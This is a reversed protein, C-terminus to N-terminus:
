FIRRNESKYQHLQKNVLAGVMLVLTIIYIWLFFLIITGISGYVKSYSSFNNVYFNFCFSSLWWTVVCTIAGPLTSKIKVNKGLSMGYMLMVLITLYSFMCIFLLISNTTSLPAIRLGFLVDLLGWIADAFVYYVLPLIVLFFFMFVFSVSLLYRKFLQLKVEGYYIKNVAEIVTKFAKSSSYIAVIFTTSILGVPTTNQTIDTIFLELVQITFDPFAEIHTSIVSADISINTLMTILFLLFPFMGLLFRFSVQCALDSLDNKFYGMGFDLILEKSSVKEKINSNTLGIKKQM